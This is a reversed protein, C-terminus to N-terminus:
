IVLLVTNVLTGSEKFSEAPLDHFSGGRAEVDARFAIGKRTQSFEVRASMVAVLCGGPKLFKLAYWVHDIDREGDFPPNMLVRDFQGLKGRMSTLFDEHFVEVELASLKLAREGNVEVCVVNAGCELAALAIAGEGASPELVRLPEENGARWMGAKDIIREVVAPPTPFWGDNKARGEKPHFTEKTRGDGLVAGYHEALLGNVRDVLDNRKFWLHANGNKYWVLRFFEDSYEGPQDRIRSREQGAKNAFSEIYEVHPKGDLIRFTREIDRLQEDRQAYHNWNGYESFARDLIIKSGVKFGDHTRFRRDLSSFVNAIGRRFIESSQGLLTSVTAFATDVTLEPPDKELQETFQDRAQKDMLRELETSKILHRWVTRDLSKRLTGLWKERGNSVDYLKYRYDDYPTFYSGSGPAARSIADHANMLADYAHGFQDLARNRHGVLQEISDRRIIENM